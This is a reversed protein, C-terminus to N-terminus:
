EFKLLNSLMVLQEWRTAMHGLMIFNTFANQESNLCTLSDFSVDVSAGDVEALTLSFGREDTIWCVDGQSTTDAARSRANAKSDGVVYYFKLARKGDDQLQIQARHIVGMYRFHLNGSVSRMIVSSSDDLKQTTQFDFEATVGLDRATPMIPWICTGDNHYMGNLLSDFSREVRKSFRDLHWKKDQLLTGHHVSWGLFKGFLILKESVTSAKSDHLRLVTDIEHGSFPFFFFSPKENTFHVWRGAQEQVPLWTSDVYRVTVDSAQESGDPSFNEVALKNTASQVVERFKLRQTIEQRLAVSEERLDERELVLRQLERQVQPVGEIDRGVDTHRLEGIRNELERELCRREQQMAVNESAKKNRFRSARHNHLETKRKDKLEQPWKRVAARSPAYLGLEMASVSMDEWDCSTGASPANDVSVSTPM